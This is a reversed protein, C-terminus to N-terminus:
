EFSLFNSIETRLLVLYAQTIQFLGVGECHGIMLTWVRVTAISLGGSLFPFDDTYIGAPDGIWAKM